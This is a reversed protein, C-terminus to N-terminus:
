AAAALRARPRRRSRSDLRRFRALADAIEHYARPNVGMGIHTADIEVCEAAPDLSAEWEVIGDRKSYLSVFGVGKPFRGAMDDDFGECCDRRLCSLGFIGPVGLTGLTGLAFVQAKVVPHIALQDTLPSGLTVIGSVLDPRRRALVKAFCGGRSQGIVAVKQGQREALVEAREELKTVAAESCNVNVRMHSSCTRHGTHRLWRTMLGLSDDGALFGPVLLVPQGKGDKVGAGAYVPNRLLAAVERAM